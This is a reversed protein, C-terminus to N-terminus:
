LTLNKELLELIKSKPQPGNLVGVVEGENVFIFHPISKVGFEVPAHANEDVNLRAVVLRKGFDSAVERLVPEM